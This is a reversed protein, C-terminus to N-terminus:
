EWSIYMYGEIPGVNNAKSDVVVVGKYIKKPQYYWTCSTHNVGSINNTCRSIFTYGFLSQKLLSLGLKADYHNYLNANLRVDATRNTKDIKEQYSGVNPLYFAVYDGTDAFVLTIFSCLVLTCLSLKLIQKVM